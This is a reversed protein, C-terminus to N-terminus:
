KPIIGAEIMEDFMDLLRPRVLGDKRGVMNEMMEKRDRNYEEINDETLNIFDTTDEEEALVIPVLFMGVLCGYKMKNRFEQELEQRTFPVPYDGAELVSSFSSYYMDLFDKLNNQRDPGNFSGYLFYTLDIGLSVRRMIQLDVLIVEVPAGSSNYRFVFNNTWCDGHILVTFKSTDDFMTTMDKMCTTKSERIWEVVNEYGPIKEMVLAAAELQGNIIASFGQMATSDTLWKEVFIPWTKCINHTELSREVLLSGAHLKGLEKLILTAHPVDLGQRRNFMKFGRRRLDEMVFLEKGKELSKNYMKAFSLENIGVDVLEQNLKPVLQLYATTEKIFIEGMTIKMFEPVKEDLPQCIKAVYSHQKEEGGEGDTYTVHLGTVICAYNDGKNVFDKIEYSVLRAADGKDARLTELAITETVLKRHDPLAAKSSMTKLRTPTRSLVVERKEHSLIIPTLSPSPRPLPHHAHSLTIPTPSPSPRPLPHHAHSLTIPTPSPSPPPLPHHAHSLTIPTLSPSPRPLPIIPTPSPSPRSLPTIPTPSPSPRSLPHHAHSLTIPTPSPSPRTLPHHAHSLTIPTPSPSPRSLPHHTKLKRRM